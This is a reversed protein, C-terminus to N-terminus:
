VITATTRRCWSQRHIMTDTDGVNGWWSCTVRQPHEQVAREAGGVLCLLAEAVRRALAAGHQERGLRAARATITEAPRECAVRRHDLHQQLLHSRVIGHFEPTELTTAFQQYAAAFWPHIVPITARRAWLYGLYCLAADDLSRDLAALLEPLYPPDGEGDWAIKDAVFVVTDLLSPSPKLTTHCSIASLVAVDSIDFTHRAITASLKQHLVIPAQEEEPLVAFQWAKATAVWEAAPIIVSIDHLWGVLEAQTGDAGFRLALRCAEQAVRGSHAAIHHKNHSALLRAVDTPVLAEREGDDGGRRAGGKASRWRTCRSAM